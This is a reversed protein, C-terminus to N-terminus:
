RSQALLGRRRLENAVASVLFFVGTGVALATERWIGATIVALGFVVLAVTISRTYGRENRPTRARLVVVTGILWGCAGIIGLAWPGDTLRQALLFVLAGALAVTVEGSTPLVTERHAM